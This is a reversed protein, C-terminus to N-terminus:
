IAKVKKGSGQVAPNAPAKRYGPVQLVNLPPPRAGHARSWDPRASQVKKVGTTGAGQNQTGAQTNATTNSQEQGQNQNEVQTQNQEQAQERNRNQEQVQQEKQQVTVTATDPSVKVDQANIVGSIFLIGALALVRGKITKM